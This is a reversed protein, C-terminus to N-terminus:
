IGQRSNYFSVASLETKGEHYKLKEPRDTQLHSDEPDNCRTAQYFNVTTESNSVPKKKFVDSFDASM